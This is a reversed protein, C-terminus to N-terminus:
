VVVETGPPKVLVPVALGIVTVPRVLPFAYVKETVAVFAIPVPTALEAEFETVGEVAGPAGVIPIAM